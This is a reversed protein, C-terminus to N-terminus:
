PASILLKIFQLAKIYSIVTEDADSLLDQIGRVVACYHFEKGCLNYCKITHFRGLEQDHTLTNIDNHISFLIIGVFSSTNQSTVGGPIETAIAVM